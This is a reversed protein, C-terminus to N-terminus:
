IHRARSVGRLAALLAAPTGPAIMLQREKATLRYIAPCEEVTFNTCRAEDSDSEPASLQIKIAIM